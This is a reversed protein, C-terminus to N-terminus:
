NVFHTPTDHTTYPLKGQRNSYITYPSAVMCWEHWGLWNQENFERIHKFSPVCYKHSNYLLIEHGILSCNNTKSTFISALLHALMKLIAHFNRHSFHFHTRIIETNVLYQDGFMEKIEFDFDFM